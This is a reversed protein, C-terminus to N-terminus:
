RGSDTSICLRALGDDRLREIETFFAEDVIGAVALCSASEIAVYMLFVFVMALNKRTKEQVFPQTKRLAQKEWDVLHRVSEPEFRFHAASENLHKRLTQFESDIEKGIAGASRPAAWAAREPHLRFYRLKEICEILPRLIAGAEQALGDLCLSYCALALDRAKVTTCGSVTAFDSRGIITQFRDVCADVADFGAQICDRHTRLEGDLAALAKERTKWLEARSAGM